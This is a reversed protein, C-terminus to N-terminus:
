KESTTDEPRFSASFQEDNTYGILVRMRLARDISRGVPQPTRGEYGNIGPM